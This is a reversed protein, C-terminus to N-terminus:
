VAEVSILKIENVGYGAKILNNMVIEVAQAEDVAPTTFGGKATPIMDPSFFQIEVLFKM